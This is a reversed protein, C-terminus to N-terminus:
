SMGGSTMGAARHMIGARLDELFLDMAELGAQAFAIEQSRSGAELAALGARASALAAEAQAVAARQHSNQLRLIVQGADVADGEKVLIEAAVGSAQMSLTAQHVPLVVAEAVVTQEARAALTDASHSVDGDSRENMAQVAAGDGTLLPLASLILALVLGLFVLVSVAILLYKKM